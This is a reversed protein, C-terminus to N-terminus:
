GMPAHPTCRDIPVKSVTAAIDELAEIVAKTVESAPPPAEVPKSQDRLCSILPRWADNSLPCAQANGIMSSFSRALFGPLDGPQNLTAPDVKRWNRDKLFVTEQMGDAYIVDHAGAVEDYFEITARRWQVEKELAAAAAPSSTTRALAREFNMDDEVQIEIVDGVDLHTWPLGLDAGGPKKEETAKPKATASLKM